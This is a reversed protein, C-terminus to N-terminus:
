DEATGMNEILTFFLNQKEKKLKSTLTSDPTKTM